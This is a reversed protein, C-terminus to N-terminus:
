ILNKIKRRLLFNNGESYLIRCWTICLPWWYNKKKGLASIITFTKSRELIFFPGPFSFFFFTLCFKQLIATSSSFFSFFFPPLFLPHRLFLRFCSACGGRGCYIFDFDNQAQLLQCLFFYFYFIFPISFSFFLLPVSPFLCNYQVFNWSFDSTGQSTLKVVGFVSIRFGRIEIQNVVSSLIFLWGLFARFFSLLACLIWSYFFFLFVPWLKRSLGGAM